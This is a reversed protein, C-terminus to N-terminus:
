NRYAPYNCISILPLIIRDTKSFPHLKGPVPGGGVAQDKSLAKSSDHHRQHTMESASQADPDLRTQWRPGM